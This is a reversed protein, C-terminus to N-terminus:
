ESDAICAPICLFTNKLKSVTVSHVAHRMLRLDRPVVSIDQLRNEM